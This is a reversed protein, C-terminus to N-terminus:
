GKTRKLVCVGYNKLTYTRDTGGIERKGIFCNGECGCLIHINIFIHYLSAEVQCWLYCVGPKFWERKHLNDWILIANQTTLWM